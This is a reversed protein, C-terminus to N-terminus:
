VACIGECLDYAVIIDKVSSPASRPVRIRTWECIHYKGGGHYARLAVTCLQVRSYIRYTHTHPNSIFHSRARRTSFRCAHARLYLTSPVHACPNKHKACACPRFKNVSLPSWVCYFSVCVRDLCRCRPQSTQAPPARGIAIVAPLYSLHLASHQPEQAICVQLRHVVCLVCM